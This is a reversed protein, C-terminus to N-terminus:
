PNASDYISPNKNQKKKTRRIVAPQGDSTPTFLSAAVSAISGASTTELVSVGIEKLKM